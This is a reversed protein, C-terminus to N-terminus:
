HVTLNVGYSINLEDYEALSMQSCETIKLFTVPDISLYKLENHEETTGTKMASDLLLLMARLNIYMSVMKEYADKPYLPKSGQEDLALAGVRSLLGEANSKLQKVFDLKLRANETKKEDGM